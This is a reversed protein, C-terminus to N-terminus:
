HEAQVESFVDIRAHSCTKKEGGEKLYKDFNFLENVQSSYRPIVWTEIDLKELRNTDSRFTRGFTSTLAVLPYALASVAKLYLKSALPTSAVSAFGLRLHFISEPTTLHTLHVVDPREERGHLTREYLDDSSKDLTGYLYDYFPM